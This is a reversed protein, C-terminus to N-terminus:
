DARRVSASPPDTVDLAYVVNGGQRMNGVLVRTGSTRRASPSATTPTPPFWVDAVQPSGDMYYTRRRRGQGQGAGERDPSAGSLDHLGDGRRRYGSRLRGSRALPTGSSRRQLRAPIRREIGRVPDSRATARVHRPSSSTARRPTVRLEALGGGPPELPVRGLAEQKRDECPPSHGVQLRPHVRRDTTGCTTARPRRREDPFDSAADPSVGLVESGSVLDTASVNSRASPRPCCRHRARPRARDTTPCSLPEAPGCQPVEDAADWFGEANTKLPGSICTTPRCPRTTWRATATRTASRARSATSSSTRSTAKGTPLQQVPPFSTAPTSTTATRRAAPRFRRRPSPSPSRSSTPWPARRHGGGASGPQQEPLVSRQGRGGDEALLQNAVDGTTFGVTYTDIM